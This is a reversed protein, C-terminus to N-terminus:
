GMWEWILVAPAGAGGAGSSSGGGGGGAGYGTAAGGAGAGITGTGGVGFPSGAGANNGGAGNNPGSPKGGSDSASGGTGGCFAGTRHGPQGSFANGGGSGLLGLNPNPDGGGGAGGTGNGAAANGGNNGPRLIYTCGGITFTTNAGAGGIVYSYATNGSVPLTLGEVWEGSGGGGGLASASGNGGNGGRATGSIRVSTAWAPSTISTGSTTVVTQRRVLGGTTFLRWRQSDGDYIIAASENPQITLDAGISFRNAATSSASENALTISFSGVNQILHLRGGVGANTYNANAAIGTITRPADSTLRLQIASALGAPNYDNQNATIQAPSLVSSIRLSNGGWIATEQTNAYIKSTGAALLSAAAGGFSVGSHDAKLGSTRNVNDLYANAGMQGSTDWNFRNQESSPLNNDYRDWFITGGNMRMKWGILASTNNVELFSGGAALNQTNFLLPNSEDSRPNIVLRRHSESHVATVRWRATTGDYMLVATDGSALYVDEGTSTIFRNAAASSASQNILDITGGIIHLTLVRGDSGTALGTLSVHGGGSVDVRVRATTALGTPSWDNVTGAALAAPSIVSSFVIEGSLSGSGTPPAAWVGDARLFNTSGGGSAPALGKLSSSFTNLASTAEAATMDKVATGVVTIDSGLFFPGNGGDLSARGITGFTLSGGARRLVLNDAGAVIDAPDGATGAARGIVSTAASNRLKADTIADNDVTWTAGSGSVTIDGKDGDTLGAVTSAITLTNAVDNYTATIGTGPVVLTAVRDDVAEAFDTIDAAVHTHASPTFTAPVGSLSGWPITSDLVWTDAGSRRAYGTTALAELAGLDNALALTPNGAVGDGNSVTIGAAPAAISRTAVTGAGTRAVLGTTALGAFATLDVDLPQADTIGYGALTTPTSTITSWAQTHSAPTAPVAEWAAGTSRELRGLDTDWYLYGANSAAAAPKAATTGKAHISGSWPLADSGGPAHTSAHASPTFSSPAGSISTWPVTGWTLAGSARVLVQGDATASIDAVDGTTGASRGVVSTAAGQRLLANTIGNAAISFTRNASLDGGGSLPATTSIARTNPVADTVSATTITGFGLVGGARRLVQNDASAAIDAVDGTTNASRGVVSVGASQRFLTNSIGNTAISFTRNASLDGGGSLPASTTITRTNPVADTIGYGALNTPTSTITSWAQNHASPTFTAPVGSLTGWPITTDLTWTDTATRRAYGTTALGELAALDNALAFTLTGSTTIPSGSITLGAAPATAAVSTVTGSGGGGGGSAAITVDVEGNVLDDAVTITVNAGEIFNLAQRRAVPVGTDRVEVGMEAILLRMAERLATRAETSLLTQEILRKLEQENAAM